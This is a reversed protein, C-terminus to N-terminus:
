CCRNLGWSRGGTEKMSPRQATALSVVDLKNLSNLEATWRAFSGDAAARADLAKQDAEAFRRGGGNCEKCNDAVSMTGRQQAEGQTALSAVHLNSDFTVVNIKAIGHNQEAFNCSPGTCNAGGFTCDDETGASINPTTASRDKSTRLSHVELVPIRGRSELTKGATALGIKFEGLQLPSKNKAVPAVGRPLETTAPRHSIKEAISM